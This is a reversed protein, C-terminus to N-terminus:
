VPWLESLHRFCPLCEVEILCRIACAKVEAEPFISSEKIILMLFICRFLELATPFLFQFCHVAEDTTCVTIFCMSQAQGLPCWWFYAKRQKSFWVEYLNSSVCPSNLSWRQGTQEIFPITDAALAVSEIQIQHRSDSQFVGFNFCFLCEKGRLNLIRWSWRDLVNSVM